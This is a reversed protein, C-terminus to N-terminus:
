FPVDDMAMPEDLFQQELEEQSLTTFSIESQTINNEIEVMWNTDDIVPQKVNVAEDAQLKYDIYRGNLSNWGMWIHKHNEGLHNFKVKLVKVKVLDNEYDRHALLGHPSMDYFEGGGKISYFNPEYTRREDGSTKVPHAVLFILIDHEKAFEDIKLLYDNTYDNVNKHLSEQLRVKNYPDIVLVKIGHKYILQKAKELVETMGFRKLEIYKFNDHIFEKGKRYWSETLYEKRNVWKGALKSMLKGAHIQCPQNEPSAMAIKWGYRMCYGLCMQDVWDSKGSSPKGTVVIYQGLYTSFIRDFSDYGTTYGKQM